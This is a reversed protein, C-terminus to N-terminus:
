NELSTQNWYFMNAYRNEVPFEPDDYVIDLTLGYKEILENKTNWIQESTEDADWVGWINDTPTRMGWGYNEPLV